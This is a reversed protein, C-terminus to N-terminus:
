GFAAILKVTPLVDLGALGVTYTLEVPHPVVVAAQVGVMTGIELGDEVARKAAPFGTPMGNAGFEM